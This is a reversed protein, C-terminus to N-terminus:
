LERLRPHGVLGRDRDAVSLVPVLLVDVVDDDLVPDLHRDRRGGAFAATVTAVDTRAWNRCALAGRAGTDNAGRSWPRVASGCPKWRQPWPRKCLSFTTKDAFFTGGYLFALADGVVQVLDALLLLSGEATLLRGLASPHMGTAAQRLTEWVGMRIGSRSRTTWALQRLAASLLNKMLQAADGVPETYGDSQLQERVRDSKRKAPHSVKSQKVEGNALWEALFEDEQVDGLVGLLEFIGRYTPITQSHCGLAVL